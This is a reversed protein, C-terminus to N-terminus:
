RERRVRCIRVRIFIVGLCRLSEWRIFSGMRCGSAPVPEVGSPTELLYGSGPLCGAFSLQSEDEELRSLRSLLSECASVGCREGDCGGPEASRSLAAAEDAGCGCVCLDRRERAIGLALMLVATITFGPNKRLQRLAFRLDQLLTEFFPVTGRERYAQRTREMGGLKMLAARRAEEATMGARMNDDIHMQLHGELESAFEQERRGSSFM